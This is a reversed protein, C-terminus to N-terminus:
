CHFYLFVFHCSVTTCIRIHALQECECLTYKATRCLPRKVKIEAALRAVRDCDIIYESIFASIGFTWNFFLDLILIVFIKFKGLRIIITRDTLFGTIGCM